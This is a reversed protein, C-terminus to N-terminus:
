RYAVGSVFCFFRAGLFLNLGPSFFISIMFSILIVCGTPFTSYNFFWDYFRRKFLELSTGCVSSPGISAIKSM